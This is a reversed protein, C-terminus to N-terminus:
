QTRGRVRDRRSRSHRQARIQAELARARDAGRRLTTKIAELTQEEYGLLQCLALTVPEIKRLESHATLAQHILDALWAARTTSDLDPAAVRVRAPAIGYADALAESATESPTLIWRANHFVFDRAARELNSQLAAYEPEDEIASANSEVYSTLTYVVYPKNQRMLDLCAAFAARVADGLNLWVLAYAAYADRAADSFDCHIDFADLGDFQANTEARAAETESAFTQVLVQM